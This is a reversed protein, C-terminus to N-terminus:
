LAMPEATVSLPDVAITSAADGNEQQADTANHSSREASASLTNELARQFVPLAQYQRILDRKHVLADEYHKILQEQQEQTYQAGALADLVQRCQAIKANLGAVLRHASLSVADETSRLTELLQVVMPLFVFQEPVLQPAASAVPPTPVPTASASTVVMPTGPRSERASQM